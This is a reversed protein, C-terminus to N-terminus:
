GHGSVGNSGGNSGSCPSNPLSSLHSSLLGSCAVRTSGGNASTSILFSGGGAASPHLPSNTVSLSLLSSPGGNGTANSGLCVGNPALLGDGGGGGCSNSHASGVVCGLGNGGNTSYCSENTTTLLGCANVSPDLGNAQSSTSGRRQEGASLESQTIEQARTTLHQAVRMAIEPPAGFIFM